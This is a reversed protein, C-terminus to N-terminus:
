HVSRLWKLICQFLAEPEVPKAVFDNMGAAFCRAKDESFANPTMAVIPTTGHRPMARIQRTAALGDMRPMQMDMLILKYDCQGARECAAMGDEAFDVLLGLEDLMAQTIERNVPEDEAVLIRSGAYDQKLIAEAEALPPPPRTPSFPSGKKLRVTFWFSSGQGPQSQAGADGGMLQAFKRTIALGLGTGGYKRTMTNDAQEFAAFLRQMVDAEIGIGSDAVEFRLLASESNESLLNARLCVYGQDTFKIANTAYNLLAQQLRTQDGILCNPLPSADISLSLQKAEARDHLISAVNELLAAIDVPAEELSFKGAEIKSLELIANIIALLHEGAGELKGMRELQQPSLGSRRIMHAMGTIANLPTRIEHSMNALFASKAINAMEAAEKAKILEATRETVVDELHLRHQELENEARKRESIDIDICYMEPEGSSGHLMVHSSFVEAPSGDARRLTLEGAPIAPGGAAWASTLRVVDDRMGEPIILDELRVGMAEDRRYGYLTESAKNWFIVRRNRDYGQVSISPVHEFITRFREESERLTRQQKLEETIDLSLSVLAVAQGQENRKVARLVRLDHVQGDSFPLQQQTISIERDSWAKRDAALCQERFDPPILDTYREAALFCSESLGMAQCFAKNVFSLKGNEDQLWIGIPATDLILQLTQRERRLAQEALVKDTIDRAIGFLGIIEGNADRIPYKRNDVWGKHGDNRLTEQIEHAVAAGAFVQKELRYYHDAFEEPFIDYDTQGLLDSWHESPSTVTVLTQSAGTMVHNRDKFYIFDDTIEMMARFNTTLDLESAPRALSKADQLLLDLKVALAESDIEKQYFGKLCRIRGDAHRLRINFTGATDHPARSFLQEAIDTDDPHILAPLAIRTALFDDPHYGLLAVMGDSVSRIPLDDTLAMSIRAELVARGDTKIMSKGPLGHSTLM